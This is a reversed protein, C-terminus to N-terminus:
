RNLYPTLAVLQGRTKPGGTFAGGDTAVYLTDRDAETTGFVADTAGIIQQRADAIISRRGDRALKVLTNYPHTTIFLSGDHGIAFDDGPIGTALEKPASFRGADNMEFRLVKTSDSVTVILDRGMFRLGNAGPALAILPRASLVSDKLAIDAHGTNPDIRWVIGLSSDSSYLNGDPGFDLGNPWAGQPLRTMMDGRGDQGIRWIGPTSGNSSMYLTGGPAVAIVGAASGTPTKFIVSESGDPRHAIVEGHAHRYYDSRSFDFGKNAALYLVGDRGARVSEFWVGEDYTKVVRAAVPEYPLVDAKPLLLIKLGLPQLAAIAVSTLTMVISLPWIGSGGRIAAYLGLLLVTLGAYAAAFVAFFPVAISFSLFLGPLATLAACLIRAGTRSPFPKLRSEAAGPRILFCIATAFLLFAALAEVAYTMPIM